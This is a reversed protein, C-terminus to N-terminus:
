DVEGDGESDEDRRRRQGPSRSRARGKSRGAGGGAQKSPPPRVFAFDVSITQELLKEGNAGEIAAKAESLTPYEILVYGKVYGTRRDLNLHVNKVDGFEGFMDQIDEETAEEHVNTVAVIWGEISRVASANEHTQTDDKINKRSTDPSSPASDVDMETDAM